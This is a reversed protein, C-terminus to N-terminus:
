AIWSARVRIIFQIVTIDIRIVINAVQSQSVAIVVSAVQVEFTPECAHFTVRNPSSM